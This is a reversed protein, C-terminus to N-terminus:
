ALKIRPQTATSKLGTQNVRASHRLCALPTSINDNKYSPLLSFCHIFQNGPRLYRLDSGQKGSIGGVIVIQQSPKSILSCTLDKRAQTLDPGATWTNTDLNLYYTSTSTRHPELHNYYGGAVFITTRNVYVMCAGLLYPTTSTLPLDPLITKTQWYDSSLAFQRYSNGVIM